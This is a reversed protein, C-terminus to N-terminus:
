RNGPGYTITGEMMMPAPTGSLQAMFDTFRGGDESHALSLALPQLSFAESGFPAPPSRTPRRRGQRRRM